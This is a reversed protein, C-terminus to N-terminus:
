LGLRAKLESWPVTCVPEGREVKAATDLMRRHAEPDRSSMAVHWWRDLCENVPAIGLSERAENMVRRCERDFDGAEEPLLASRIARPNRNIRENPSQEPSGQARRSRAPMHTRRVGVELNRRRLGGRRDDVPPIRTLAEVTGGTPSCGGAAGPEGRVAYSSASTMLVGAGLGFAFLLGARARRAPLLAAAALAACLVLDPVLFLNEARWSDHHLLYVFTVLGIAAAATRALLLLNM